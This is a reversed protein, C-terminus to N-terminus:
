TMGMMALCCAKKTGSMGMQCGNVDLMGDHSQKHHQNEVIHMMQAKLPFSSIHQGILPFTQMYFLTLLAFNTIM